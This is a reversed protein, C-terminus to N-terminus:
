GMLPNLTVSDFKFYEFFSKAYMKSTNGIDGRKGDAIVLIHSPILTVTEELNKLGESGYREYFALNIKYAATSSKTAEIIQENFAVVPNKENLLHKPIKNLDTDLGICVYNGNSNATDLKKQANM